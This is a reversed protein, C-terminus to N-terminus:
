LGCLCHAAVTFKGQQAAIFQLGDLMNQLWSDPLSALTSVSLDLRAVAGTM